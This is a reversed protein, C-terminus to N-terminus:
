YLSALRLSYLERNRARSPRPTSAIAHLQMCYSDHTNLNKCLKTMHTSVMSALASACAEWSPHCSADRAYEMRACTDHHKWACMHSYITQASATFDSVSAYKNCSGGSEAASRPATIRTVHMAMLRGCSPSQVVCAHGHHMCMQVAGDM